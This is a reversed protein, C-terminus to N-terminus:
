QLYIYMSYDDTWVTVHESFVGVKRNTFAAVKFVYPTYIKLDTLKKNFIDNEYAINPISFTTWTANPITGDKYMLKYGEIVGQRFGEPM